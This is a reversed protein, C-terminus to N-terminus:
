PSDEAGRQLATKTRARLTCDLAGKDTVRIYAATVGLAHAADRVAALMQAGFRDKLPSELEIHLTDAPAAEVLCDNSQLSGCVSSKNIKM